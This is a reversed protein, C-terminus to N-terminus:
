KKDIKFMIQDIAALFALAMVFVIIGTLDHYIGQAYRNGFYWTILVLIMVRLLNTFVAVPIVLAILVVVHWWKRQIGERLYIVSLALLSFISNMGSCAHAVEASYPGFYLTVGNSTVPFLTSSLINSSVLALGKALESSLMYPAVRGMVVMVTGAVGIFLASRIYEKPALGMVLGSAMIFLGWVELLVVPYLQGATYVILGFLLAFLGYLSYGLNNEKLSAVICGREIWLVVLATAYLLPEDTNSLGNIKIYSYLSLFFVYVYIVWPIYAVSLKIKNMYKLYFNPLDIVCSVWYCLIIIYIDKRLCAETM